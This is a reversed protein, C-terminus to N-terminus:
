LRVGRMTLYREAAEADLMYDPDALQRPSCAFADCLEITIRFNPDVGNLITAWTFGSFETVDLITRRLNTYTPAPLRRLRTGLDHPTVPTKKKMYM